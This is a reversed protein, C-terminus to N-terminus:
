NWEFIKYAIKLGFNADFKLEYGETRDNIGFWEDFGFGPSLFPDVPDYTINIGRMGVGCYFQWIWKKNTYTVGGFRIRLGGVKRNVNAKGFEVQTGNRIFWDDRKIYKQNLNFFELGMFFHITGSSYLEEGFLVNISLKSELYRNKERISSNNILMSLGLPAGMKGELYFRDTFRWEVVGEFTSTVPELLNLPTFGVSIYRLSTEKEQASANLLLFFFVLSLM